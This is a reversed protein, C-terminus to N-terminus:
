DKHEHAGWGERELEELAQIFEQELTQGRQTDGSGAENDAQYKLLRALGSVAQSIAQSLRATEGLDESLCIQRYIREITERLMEIDRGVTEPPKKPAAAPPNKRGSM